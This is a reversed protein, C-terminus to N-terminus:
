EETKPADKPIINSIESINVLEEELTADTVDMPNILCLRVPQSLYEVNKMRIFFDDIDSITGIRGLADSKIQYYVRVGKYEELLNKGM